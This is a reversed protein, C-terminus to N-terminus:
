ATGGRHRFPNWTWDPLSGDQRAQHDAGLDWADAKESGLWESFLRQADIQSLDPRSAIWASRMSKATPKM